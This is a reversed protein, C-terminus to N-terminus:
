RAGTTIDVSGLAATLRATKRAYASVVSPLRECFIAQQCLGNQCFFRRTRLDLRVSVGHWPLDAVARHYRSHVRSSALGCRPCAVEPRKTSLVLLLSKEGPVLKELRVAAPDALLTSIEM